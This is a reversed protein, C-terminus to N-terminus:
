DSVFVLYSNSDSAARCGYILKRLARDAESTLEINQFAECENQLNVIKTPGLVYDQYMDPFSVLMPCQPFVLKFRIENAEFKESDYAGSTDVPEVGKSKLTSQYIADFDGTWISIRLNTMQEDPFQGTKSLYFDLNGNGTKGFIGTPKEPEAESTQKGFLFMM